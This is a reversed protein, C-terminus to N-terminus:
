ENNAKLRKAMLKRIANLDTLTPIIPASPELKPDNASAELASVFAEAKESDTIKINIFISSTAM